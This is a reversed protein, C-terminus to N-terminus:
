KSPSLIKNEDIAMTNEHLHFLHYNLNPFINDQSEMLQLQEENIHGRYIQEVLHRFRSIHKRAREEAYEVMTGATIIFPWDSSQALFLERGAQKLARETLKDPHPFETALSSMEEAAKHLHRYLWDNNGNLWVEFYGKDGWSSPNPSSIQLPFGLDLYEGPTILQINDQERDIKRCLYDLWIPGEFWWHGFLEADYPAVVVPPRGMIGALFEVQKERNFMFNGAHEQAKNRALHPDYPEKYDLSQGSGSIRHYKIGTDSRFGPPHLYDKIYELDLDYGIDRYFERYSFDGPYGEQSSWVQKSSEADRAFVAVNNETLIPSYVGYKPRPSAYLVGHTDTVFYQVGLEELIEDIGYNYACEPLWIGRPLDNFKEQYYDVAAALQAYVSEKQMQLLPLFGHTLATTIVEIKGEDQLRRYVRLPNGQCNQHYYSSMEDFHQRYMNALHAFSNDGRARTREQERCALSQLNELYKQFREQLLPDEMMSMVTPSLSFTLRFYVEDENMKEMIKLLPLYCELMAEYFWKEELSYPHEPHRVYPLHTHLILSLFGQPM